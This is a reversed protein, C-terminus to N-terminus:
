TPGSLGAKRLLYTTGSRVASGASTTPNGGLTLGASGRASLGLARPHVAMGRGKGVRRPSGSPHGFNVGGRGERGVGIGIREGLPDPLGEQGRSTWLVRGRRSAGTHEAPSRGRVTPMGGLATRLARGPGCRVDVPGATLRATVDTRAHRGGGREGKEVLKPRRGAREARPGPKVILRRGPDGETGLFQCRSGEVRPPKRGAVGSRDELGQGEKLVPRRGGRSPSGNEPNAGPQSREAGPNWERGSAARNPENPAHAPAQGSSDSRIPVLCMPQTREACRVGPASRTPKTRPPPKTRGHSRETL